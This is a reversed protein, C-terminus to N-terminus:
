VENRIEHFNKRDLGLAIMGHEMVLLQLEDM